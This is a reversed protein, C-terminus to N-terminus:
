YRQRTTAGKSGPASVNNGNLPAPQGAPAGPEPIHCFRETFKCKKPM